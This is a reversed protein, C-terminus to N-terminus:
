NVVLKLCNIIDDNNNYGKILISYILNYGGYIDKSWVDLEFVKKDEDWIFDIDGLEVYLMNKRIHYIIDSLKSNLITLARLENEINKIEITM